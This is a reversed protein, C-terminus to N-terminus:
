IIFLNLANGALEIHAQISNFDNSEQLELNGISPRIWSAAENKTIRGTKKKSSWYVQQLTCNIIM